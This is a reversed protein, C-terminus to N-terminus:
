NNETGDKDKQFVSPPKNKDVRLPYNLDNM